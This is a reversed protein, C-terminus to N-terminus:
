IKKENQKQRTNKELNLPVGLYFTLKGESFFMYQSSM